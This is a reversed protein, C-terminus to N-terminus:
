RRYGLPHQPPLPATTIHTVTGEAESNSRGWVDSNKDWSGPEALVQCSALATQATLEEQSRRGGGGGGVGLRGEGGASQQEARDPACEGTFVQPGCSGKGERREEPRGSGELGEGSRGRPTSAMGQFSNLATLPEREGVGGRRGPQQGEKDRRGPERDARGKKHGM